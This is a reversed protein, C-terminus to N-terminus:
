KLRLVAWGSKDPLQRVSFRKQTKYFSAGVFSAFYTRKRSYETKKVELGEGVKLEDLAAPIPTADAM